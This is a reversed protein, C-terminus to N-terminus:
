GAGALLEHARRKFQLLFDSRELVLTMSSLAYYRSVNAPVIDAYNAAVM